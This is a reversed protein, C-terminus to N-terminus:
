TYSSLHEKCSFSVKTTLLLEAALEPLKPEVSVLCTFWSVLLPTGMVVPCLHVMLSLQIETGGVAVWLVSFNTFDLM